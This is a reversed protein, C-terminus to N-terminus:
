LIFRPTYKGVGFPARHVKGYVCHECFDLSQDCFGPLLKQKQLVKLTKEGVHGLRWHWLNTFNMSSSAIYTSGLQAEGKLIFLNRSQKQGAFLLRERLCVKLEGEKVICTYGLDDLVGLSILNKRLSPIFRVNKFTLLTGSTTRFKVEGMGEVKCPLNNGM